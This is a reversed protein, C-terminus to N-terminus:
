SSRGSDARTARVALCTEFFAATTLHHAYGTRHADLCHGAARQVTVAAGEVGKLATAAQRRADEDASWIGDYEPLVHLVPVRIGAAVEPMAEHWALADRLEAAPIPHLDEGVEQQVAPDVLAPDAVFMIQDRAENPVAVHPDDGVLSAWMAHIGPQWVMGMGSAMVGHLPTATDAAAAAVTMALMGGISHGVLFVPLGDGRDAHLRDIARHLLAAQARFGCREPAIGASAGYGPRDLAIARYGLDAYNRLASARPASCLDYYRSSYSGGHLAFVIARAATDPEAARGSLVQGEVEIEIASVQTM